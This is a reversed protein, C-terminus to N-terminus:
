AARSNRLEFHRQAQALKVDYRNKAYAPGNYGKAFKHWIGQQLFTLLGNKEVFKEFCKLQNIEDVAQAFAFGHATDYGCALHNEGLIQFKGYSCAKIGATIDLQIMDLLLDYRERQTRPYPRTGWKPYSLRPYTADWRGGTIKSFRHREPLIKPYGNEFGAGAAEVAAVSQIHSVPCRLREASEQFHQFTLATDPGDEFAKLIAAETKPGWEGDITGDYRYTDRLLLQLDILSIGMTM